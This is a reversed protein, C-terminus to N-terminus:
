SPWNEPYPEGWDIYCQEWFAVKRNKILAPTFSRPLHRMIVKTLSDSERDLHKYISIDGIKGNTDIVMYFMVREGKKSKRRYKNKVLDVDFFLDSYRINYRPIHDATIYIGSKVQYLGISDELRIVKNNVNKVIEATSLGIYAKIFSDAYPKIFNKDISDMSRRLLLGYKELLIHEFIIRTQDSIGDEILYINDNENYRITNNQLGQYYKVTNINVVPYYPPPPIKERDYKSKVIDGLQAPKDNCGFIAAVLFIIILCRITLLIENM